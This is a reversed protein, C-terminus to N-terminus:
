KLDPINDFIVPVLTKLEKGLPIMLERMQPHAAHDARKSIIWKWERLNATVVIETKLANPLLGRAIQAKVGERIETDYLEQVAWFHAERRERQHDTLGEPHILQLHGEFKEKCYNCFRTSEQSFSALRHRVIEHSVGRDCVFKVSLSFHEIVSEHGLKDIKRLFEIASTDTIKDESKYCTRGAIEILFAAQEIWAKPTLITFSPKVIRM